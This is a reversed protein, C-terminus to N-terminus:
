QRQHTRSANESRKEQIFDALQALEHTWMVSVALEKEEPTIIPLVGRVQLVANVREIFGENNQM